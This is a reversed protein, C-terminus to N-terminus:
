KGFLGMEIVRKCLRVTNLAAGIRLNDAVCWLSIGNKFALNKRVRGVFVPDVNEADRTTPYVYNEPDDMVEIGFTNSLIERVEDPTIEEEFEIDVAESHGTFVPVRVATCSIPTEEALHLIKKTENVVKLEEKTYGNEDFVDIQPIVNFSIPKKFVENKFEKGNLYADVDQKLEDIGNKGAGSVAQYTSVILRKIKARENLPKLVLMLQSTSCNPNAVIGKHNKLDEDNVSAIVLPVDKEMRFASSNDIIVGGRKVIEPAFKKSTGGGASALVIDVGNFSDPTAEEVTYKKGQFELETGASKASSLFKITEFEVNLETIIESIKRGVVGTAGLIALNPKRM